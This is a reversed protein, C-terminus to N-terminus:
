QVCEAGSSCYRRDRAKKQGGWDSYTVQTATNIETYLAAWTMSVGGAALAYEKIKNPTWVLAHARWFNSAGTSIDGARMVRAVITSCNKYLARYNAGQKERIAMWKAVMLQQQAVTTNIRIIHDPLYKEGIVDSIFNTKPAGGGVRMGAISSELGMGWRANSSAAGSPWWSVYNPSSAEYRGHWVDDILMSTHGPWHVVKNTRPNVAERGGALMNNEWIIFTTM